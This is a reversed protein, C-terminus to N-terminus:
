QEMMSTVRELGRKGDRGKGTKWQEWWARMGDVDHGMERLEIEDDVLWPEEQAEVGDDGKGGEGDKRRAGASAFGAYKNLIIEGEWRQMTLDRLLAVTGVKPKFNHADRFVAVTIGSQRSSISPDHIKVHRKPPFPSQPKHIVTASVWTITAFITCHYNRAPLPPLHPPPNTLSCLTHLPPPPPATFPPPIPTAPLAPSPPPPLNQATSKPKISAAAPSHPQQNQQRMSDNTQPLRTTASTNKLTADHDAPPRPNKGTRTRKRPSVSDRELKLEVKSRDSTPTKLSRLAKRRQEVEEDPVSIAEFGDSDSDQSAVPPTMNGNVLSEGDVGSVENSLKRRKAPRENTDLSGDLDRLFGGELVGETTQAKLPKTAGVVEVDEIALYVIQGKGNLRSARQLKCDLLRLVSGQVIEENDLCYHLKSHLLAQIMLEGDSLILRQTVLPPPPEIDPQTLSDHVHLNTPVIREVRLVLPFIIVNTRLFDGIAPELRGRSVPRM